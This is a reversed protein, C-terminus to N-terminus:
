TNRFANVAFGRIVAFGRLIGCFGAVSLQQRVSIAHLNIVKIWQFSMMQCKSRVSFALQFPSFLRAALARVKWGQRCLARNASEATPRTM